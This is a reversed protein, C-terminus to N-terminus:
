PRIGFLSGFNSISEDVGALALTKWILAQNTTIVPKGLDSELTEILSVTQLDTAVICVADAKPTDVERALRYVTGPPVKGVEMPDSIGLSRNAAVKIGYASFFDTLLGGFKEPYPSAVAVQRVGRTKLAEITATAATTSPIGTHEMVWSEFRESWGQGKVLSTSLCGYAIADMGGAALEEIARESHREMTEISEADTGTAMIRAAHSTVGDPLMGWFEPELITNNTPLVVGVKARWGLM